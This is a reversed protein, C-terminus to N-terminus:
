LAKIMTKLENMVDFDDDVTNRNIFALIEDVKSFGHNHCEAPVVNSEFLGSDLSHRLTDIKNLSDLKYNSNELFRTNSEISELASKIEVVTKKSILSWACNQM